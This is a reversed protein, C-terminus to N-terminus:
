TRARRSWRAGTRHSRSNSSGPLAKAPACDGADMLEEEEDDGSGDDEDDGEDGEDDEDPSNVADDGQPESQRTCATRTVAACNEGRRFEVLSSNTAVYLTEGDPAAVTGDACLGDSESNSV